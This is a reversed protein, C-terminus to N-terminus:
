IFVFFDASIMLLDGRQNQNVSSLTEIPLATCFAKAIMILQFRAIIALFHMHFIEMHFDMLIVYSSTWSILIIFALLFVEILTWNANKNREGWSTKCSMQRPQPLSLIHNILNVNKQM